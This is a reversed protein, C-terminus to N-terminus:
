EHLFKELFESPNVNQLRIVISGSITAQTYKLFKVIVEYVVSAKGDNGTVQLVFPVYQGNFQTSHLDCSDKVFSFRKNVNSTLKCSMTNTIDKDVPQVNSIIGGDFKGNYLNLIVTRTENEPPNDNVDKVKILCPSVASLKPSGNDYIRFSLVYM